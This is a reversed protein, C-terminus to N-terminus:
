EEGSNQKKMFVTYANKTVLTKDKLTADNSRIETFGNESVGTQVQLMQYRNGALVEFVYQKGAYNVIADEPVALANTSQVEIDANMYMGPILSHDYKEFHCHVETSRDASLDKGILIIECPYKKDSNNTYALLKQGIMLKDLDKEFVTLNLHIDSPNVLEFLVDTPNVYKGININVKSVFGDIPSRLSIGRSINDATLKDADISLLKLKEYLGKVLAMQSKYDADALEFVKDSSAKTKNLERQRNYEAENFALRAKATLYDQQIQIYQLDEIVALVEGKAVHMGPLLQTYKLYGAMPVSVSIMNQPPVDIIGNVKLVTSLTKQEPKDTEIAANKLQADTMSVVDNNGQEAVTEAVPKSNCGALLITVFFLAIINNM